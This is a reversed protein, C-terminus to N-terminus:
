RAAKAPKKPVGADTNQALAAAILAARTSFYYQVSGLSLGAAEAVRRVSTGRKGREELVKRVAALIAEQTAQGGARQAASGSRHRSTRGM